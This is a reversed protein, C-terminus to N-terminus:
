IERFKNQNNENNGRKSNAKANAFKIRGM